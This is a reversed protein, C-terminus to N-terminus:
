PTPTNSTRTASSLISSVGARYRPLPPQRHLLDVGFFLRPAMATLRHRSHISCPVRRRSMWYSHPLGIRLSRASNATM